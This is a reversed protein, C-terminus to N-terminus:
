VKPESTIPDVPAEPKPEEALVAPKQVIPMMATPPETSSTEQDMAARLVTLVSMLCGIVFLTWAFRFHAWDLTGDGFMAITLGSIATSCLASGCYIMLKFKKRNTM